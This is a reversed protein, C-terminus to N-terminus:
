SVENRSSVVIERERPKSESLDALFKALRQAWAAAHEIDRLKQTLQGCREESRALRAELMSISGTVKVLNNRLETAQEELRRCRQQEAELRTEVETLGKRQLPLDAHVPPSVVVEGPESVSGPSQKSALLTEIQTVLGQWSFPKKIVITARCTEAQRKTDENILSSILVVPMDATGEQNRVHECVAFGSKEPMIIDAIVLDPRDAAFREIAEDADAALTVEYGASTLLRSAVLRVSLSDDVFLVKAM